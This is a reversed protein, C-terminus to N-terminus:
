LFEFIMLLDKIDVSLSLLATAILLAHSVHISPFLFPSIFAATMNYGTVKDSRNETYYRFFNRTQKAPKAKSARHNTLLIESSVSNCNSFEFQICTCAFVCFLCLCFGFVRIRAIRSEEMELALISLKISHM